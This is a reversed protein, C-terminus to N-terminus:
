LMIIYIIILLFCFRTEGDFTMALTRDHADKGSSLSLLVRAARCHAHLLM